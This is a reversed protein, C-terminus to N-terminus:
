VAKRKGGRDRRDEGGMGLFQEETMLGVVPKQRAVKRFVKWVVVAAMVCGVAFAILFAFVFVEFM